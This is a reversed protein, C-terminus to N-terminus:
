NITPIIEKFIKLREVMMENLRGASFSKPDVTELRYPSDVLSQINQDVEEIVLNNFNNKTKIMRYECFIDRRIKDLVKTFPVVSEFRTDNIFSVQTYLGHIIKEYCEHINTSKFVISFFDKPNELPLKYKYSEKIEFDKLLDDRNVRHPKEDKYYFIDNMGDRHIVYEMENDENDVFTNRKMCGSIYINGGTGVMAGAATNECVDKAMHIKEKWSYNFSLDPLKDVNIVGIFKTKGAGMDTYVYFNGSPTNKNNTIVSAIADPVTPYYMEEDWCVSSPDVYNPELKYSGYVEYPDQEGEVSEIIVNANESFSEKVTLFATGYNDPSLMGGYQGIDKNIKNCISRPNEGLGCFCISTADGNLFYKKQNDTINVKKNLEQNLISITKSLAMERNNEMIFSESYAIDDYIGKKINELNRETNRYNYKSFDEGGNVISTFYLNSIQQPSYLSPSRGLDKGYSLIDAVFRSCFWKYKKYDTSKNFLYQVLGVIDYTLKEDNDIFWKLRKEMKTKEEKSVFLVFVKYHAKNKKYFEDKPNHITLGLEKGGVKKSGFSYFPDLKTNFSICAHSFEDRTVKKIVNSLLTGSHMAIIYIPYKNKSTYIAEESFIDDKYVVNEKMMDSPIYKKLRNKDGIKVDNIGYKKMAKKINKALEEEYEPDVYNFFKIASRVHEESDLPFKRLEPVGFIDDPLESRKTEYFLSM